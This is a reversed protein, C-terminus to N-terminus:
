HSSISPWLLSVLDPVATRHVKRIFLPCTDAMEPYPFVVGWAAQDVKGFQGGASALAASWQCGVEHYASGLRASEFITSNIEAFALPHSSGTRWSTFTPGQWDCTTENELGLTHLLTALFYEDTMRLLGDQPYDSVIKAHKRNLVVWTSTKAWSWRLPEMEEFLRYLWAVM